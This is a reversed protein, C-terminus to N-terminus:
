SMVGREQSLGLSRYITARSVGMSQAVVLISVGEAIMNRAHELQEETLDPKVRGVRQQNRAAIINTDDTDGAIELSRLVTARSVGMLRAVYTVSSGKVLMEAAKQLQEMSMKAPRGGVRGEAKARALGAKTLEKINAPLTMGHVKGHCPPCVTLLNTEEDSGGISRPVVHHHVLDEVGGCLACFTLKM